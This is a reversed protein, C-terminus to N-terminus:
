SLFFSEAYSFNKEGDNFYIYKVEDRPEKTHVYVEFMDVFTIPAKLKEYRDISESDHIRHNM